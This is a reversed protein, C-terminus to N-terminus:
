GAGGRGAGGRTSLGALIARNFDAGGRLRFIKGRGAGGRVAFRLFSFFFFFSVLMNTTEVDFKVILMPLLLLYSCCVMEPLLDKCVNKWLEL